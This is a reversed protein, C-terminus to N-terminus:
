IQELKLMQKRCNMDLIDFEMVSKLASDLDM